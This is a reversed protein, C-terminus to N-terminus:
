LYYACYWQKNVVENPAIQLANADHPGRLSPRQPLTPIGCPPTCLLRVRWWYCIKEYLISSTTLRFDRWRLIPDSISRTHGVLLKKVLCRSLTSSSPCWKVVRCCEPLCLYAATQCAKHKNVIKAGPRLWIVTSFGGTCIQPEGSNPTQDSASHQWQWGGICVGRTYLKRPTNGFILSEYVWIDDSFVCYEVTLICSLVLIMTSSLMTSTISGWIENFRM